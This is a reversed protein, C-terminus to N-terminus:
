KGVGQSVIYGNKMAKELAQKHESRISLNKLDDVAVLKWYVLEGDGSLVGEQLKLSEATQAVFYFKDGGTKFRIKLNLWPLETSTEENWERRMNEFIPDPNKKDRQSSSGGPLEWSNNKGKPKALFLKNGNSPFM